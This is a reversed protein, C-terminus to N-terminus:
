FPRSIGLIGYWARLTEFASSGGGGLHLDRSNQIYGVTAELTYKDGVKWIGRVSPSLGGFAGLRQDSSQLAPQPRPVVPSYFDAADQTYYRLSPRLAFTESMTQQWAVELTHARIGWDDRYYRYEAQLTGRASPFHERYRTLWAVTDRHDPRTDAALVPPADPYFSFTVKYPDNYYGKGRSVTVTSQVLSTPSLIQTLGFLYENTDRPEDLTPDDHSSVRDDSRGYGLALTTNRQNLDWRGEVGFAVSEYDHEKSYAASGQLSLEGFRRAVKVDGLGRSDRVSAGTLTQVPTGSQNSVVRPSAGSVSDTALSAQVEWVEALQARTWLVPEIVQMLGREKYALTTIGIEGVEAAGAKAPVTLIPLSLAAKLLKDIAAV